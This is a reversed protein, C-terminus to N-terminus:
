TDEMTTYLKWQLLKGTKRQQILYADKSSRVNSEKVHQHLKIYQKTQKEIKSIIFLANLDVNIVV